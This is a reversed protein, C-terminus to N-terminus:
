DWSWAPISPRRGLNDVSPFHAQKLVLKAQKPWEGNDRTYVHVSGNGQSPSGCAISDGSIAVSRGFLNGLTGDNPVLDLQHSWVNGARRYVHVRRASSAAGVVVTDGDIAVASGFTYFATPTTATLKAQQTWLGANRAFVHVAGAGRLGNVNAARDGVVVTDGSISVSSGIISEDWPEDASLRAELDWVSGSRRYVYVAGHDDDNNRFDIQLTVVATDGSIAVAHGFRDGAAVIEHSLRRRMIWGGAQSEFIYVAGSSADVGEAGYAGSVVWDGDIAVAFGFFDNREADIATLKSTQSWVGSSRVFIAISGSDTENDDDRHAGVAVMDGDIAVSLGFQDGVAPDSATLKTQQTWIEGSRTFVYAAGSSVGGEDDGNAGIVLTEDSIAVSRGFYANERADEAALKQQQTWANGTRTFIPVSGSWDGNDDDSTAGVIATDALIAVSWGFEDNETADDATPKAQQTWVGNERTFVYACGSLTTIGSDGYPAGILITEGSIAISYGFGVGDTAEAAIRETQRTWIGASRTFVYAAGARSGGEEDRSASIVATDSFIAVAEGFNHQTAPDDPTFEAEPLWDGSAARVYVRAAAQRRSGGSPAGALITDGDIAVASGLDRVSWGFDPNEFKSQPIQAAAPM